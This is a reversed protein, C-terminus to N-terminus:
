IYLITTFSVKEDTDVKPIVEKTSIRRIGKVPETTDSSGEVKVEEDDIIDKLDNLLDTFQTGTKQIEEYSGSHEVKGHSLLYIKQVNKLYQLQHTVLVVCKDKLYDTICEDFMQRGVHADVASLPDDLLYIDARKYVARALNIRARQGGSLSVGREGVITRDGYPFLTFDRRLQCVRVVEHYRRADYKQGFIINQRVSGVFLWPEQSAYSIIGKVSVEGKTPVLEGLIAHLLTTKGSGVTGIVAAFEGSGVHFNVSDLATESRSKVWKFSANKIDIEIGEQPKEKNTFLKLEGGGNKIEQPQYLMTSNYFTASSDFDVEDYMLFKKIRKVSINAEAIQTIGQPFFMTVSMRLIGYLSQLVYVYQANLINGTIVYTLVCVYVATRNLFINFSMMIGRIVSIKKIEEM